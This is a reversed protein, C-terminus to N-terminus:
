SASNAGHDGRRYASPTVGTWRKFAKFFAPPETFGIRAIVHNEYRSGPQLDVVSISNDLFNTVFARPDSVASEGSGFNFVIENPGRGVLVSDVLAALDPDVVAMQNAAYCLVYM